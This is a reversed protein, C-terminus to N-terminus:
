SGLTKLQGALWEGQAQAQSLIVELQTFQRRLNDERLALRQDMRDIQDQLDKIQADLSNERSTILGTTDSSTVRQLYGDLRTAVGDTQSTFLSVVAGPDQTLADRLKAEDLTLTGDASVGTGIAGTSIGIDALSNLPGTASTVPDTVLRRLQAQIGQLGSDGLLVGAEKTAANYSMKEKIANWTTNYQDVFAKVADVVKQTDAAVTVTTGEYGEWTGATGVLKSVGVLDITVGNIVDTLNNSSRTIKAGDVYFIADKGSVVYAETDNVPYDATTPNLLGLKDWVNGNGVNGNLTIDSAAGTQNATIVLRNDVVSATVGVAATNNIKAALADLTDGSTVGTISKGNITITLDTVGLDALTTTASGVRVSWKRQATALQQVKFTYTGLAATSGAAVKVVQENSSSAAKSLFTSELKLDALKSQLTSLSTRIQRWADQKAKLQDEKGQLLVLPRREIEMLKNIIDTTNLGSALGDFTIPSLSM